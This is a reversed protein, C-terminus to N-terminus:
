EARRGPLAGVARAFADARAVYNVFMDMSAAAPALLVTSGPRARAAAERVVEVMAGDDGNSVEVVPVEPAHRALARGIVARDAGLLVVARLRDRVAIVLDDIGAGKLLGGAIWVVDAYASLSARAAHPNTAKSDDVYDVGDVTSILTNRHPGPRYSRLGDAVASAPIGVSRALAAAALANAVNHRGTVPVDEVRALETREEYACDLLVGDAVGLEGPAPPDLSFGIPHAHGDALRCSWEDDRNFVAIGSRDFVVKKAAAYATMSGHWDLHDPAVNLVAAAHPAITPARHLQFSSLEVALVDYPQPGTVVDVLPLGINGTAISALGGALLLAELMGVTTTKGNTGTVVLWPAGDPDRLRWALEPESIVELGARGAAVLLPHSPPAGPTALVLDVDPLQDPMGIERVMSPEALGAAALVHALDDTREDAVLVHAGVGNLARMAALGSVGAGLVLVRRGTWWPRRFRSPGGRAPGSM